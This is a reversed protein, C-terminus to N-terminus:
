WDPFEGARLTFSHFFAGCFSAGDMRAGSFRASCLAADSFDAGTLDAGVFSCTKLNARGFRTRRLSAGHFDALIFAGSFDSDDLTAGAFPTTDSPDEIELDRFDRVGADYRRLVEDSTVRSQPMRDVETRSVGPEAALASPITRPGRSMFDLLVKFITGSGRVFALTM